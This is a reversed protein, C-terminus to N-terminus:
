QLMKCCSWMGECTAFPLPTNWAFVFGLILLVVLYLLVHSYHFPHICLVQIFYRLACSYCHSPCFFFHTVCAFFFLVIQHMLTFNLLQITCANSYSLSVCTFNNKQLCSLGKRWLSKIQGPLFCSAFGLHAITLFKTILFNM